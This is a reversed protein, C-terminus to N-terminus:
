LSLGAETIAKYIIYVLEDEKKKMKLGSNKLKKIFEKYEVEGSRNSNNIFYIGTLILLYSYFM